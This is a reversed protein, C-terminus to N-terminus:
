SAAECLKEAAERTTVTGLSPTKGMVWATYLVENDGVEEKSISFRGCATRVYGSLRGTKVPKEWQLVRLEAKPTAVAPSVQVHVQPKAHKSLTNWMDEQTVHKQAERM